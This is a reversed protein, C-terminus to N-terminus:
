DDQEPRAKRVAVEDAPNAQMDTEINSVICRISDLLANINDLKGEILGALRGSDRERAFDGVKMNLHRLNAEIKALQNAVVGLPLAIVMELDASFAETMTRDITNRQFRSGGNSDATVESKVLALAPAASLTGTLGRFWPAATVVPLEAMRFGRAPSDSRSATM